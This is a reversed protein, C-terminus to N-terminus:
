QPGQGPADTRFAVDPASEAQRAAIYDPWTRLSLSRDYHTSAFVLCVGDGSFDYLRTWLMRPIYLGRSPDDVVYTNVTVGDSVDIRLSGHVAVAVQDTQRHAHGGRDTNPVVQHVYFVRAIEFPVHQAGEVATLRGRDDPVDQFPLWRVDSLM